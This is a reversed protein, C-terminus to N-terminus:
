TTSARATCKLSPRKSTSRPPATATSHGSTHETIPGAAPLETMTRVAAATEAAGAAGDKAPTKLAAAKAPASRQNAKPAKAVPTATSKKAM